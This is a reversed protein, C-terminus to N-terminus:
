VEQTLQLDTPKDKTSDFLEGEPKGIPNQQYIVKGNKKISFIGNLLM